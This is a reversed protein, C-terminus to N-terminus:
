DEGGENVKWGMAEITYQAFAFRPETDNAGLYSYKEHWEKKARIFDAILKDAEAEAAKKGKMGSFLHYNM